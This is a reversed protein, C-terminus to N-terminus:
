SVLPYKDAWPRVAEFVAAAQLVTAEDGRRGIIQLGVPLNSSSFGCPVTAGPNGTLNFVCTFPFFPWNMFGRGYKRNQQGVPFAPIAATPTLLLDYKQFFDEMMGRFKEIQEWAKAVEVGSIDRGCEMALKTYDMIDNGHKELVFGFPLYYRSAIAVDWVDFPMDTVPAAEELEHGQEVFVDASSEVMSRVETDVKIGYNLDPSWAIKLKKLKGEIAKIYDPPSTKICTYDIGDPGAIVNMMLAADRVNRTIPGYSSVHSVGWSAVDKPVRGYGPCLGFVGCFSAPIRVSGGGDSGQALPSIGAAVGAAAGGSSGGSTMETNWPNRCADGIKNETSGAMGFEPTNTKGIIIAGAAKLRKLLTGESEPIFDKYAVSGFTTRIGKTANLDKISVPIGHLLGVDAKSMLAKEAKRAGEMASEGAVTLYANLKPNIEEIRRLTLEMLEVPSLERRRMMEILRYAPTFALERDGAISAM